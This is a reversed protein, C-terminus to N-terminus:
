GGSGCAPIEHSGNASAGTDPDTVEVGVYDPYPGPGCSVSVTKGSHSGNIRNGSWRYAYAGSGGSPDAECRYVSGTWACSVGVSLGEGVAIRRSRRGVVRGGDGKVRLTVERSGAQGFSRTVEPGTPRAGGGFDWEYTWAEGSGASTEPVMARFTVPEGALATAPETMFDAVAYRHRAVLNRDRDRVRVLRGAEDYEYFTTIGNEDETSTLAWTLPDYAYTAMRARAPHIRVDDLYTVRGGSAASRLAVAFRVWELDEPLEVETELREWDGTGENFTMGNNYYEQGGAGYDVSISARTGASKVWASFAYRTGPQIAGDRAVDVSMALGVNSVGSTAPSLRVAQRGTRAEGAYAGTAPAAEVVAVAGDRSGGQGLHDFAYWAEHGLAEAPEQERDNYPSIRGTPIAEFSTASAEARAAHSVTAVPLAGGYGYVTASRSGDQAVAEIVRSYADYRAVNATMEWPFDKTARPYADGDYGGRQDFPFPEYDYRADYAYTDNKRFVGAECPAAGDCTSRDLTWADSWTTATAGVVDEPPFGGGEDPFAYDLVEGAGGKLNVGGARYTAEEALQTLQNRARMGEYAWYAPTARTVLAGGASTSRAMALPQGSLADWAFTRARETHKNSASTSAGDYFHLTTESGVGYASQRRRTITGSAPPGASAEETFAHREAIAGLPVQLPAGGPALATGHRHLDRSLAYLTQSEKVVRYSGGGVHEHHTVSRPRGQLASRDDIVAGDGTAADRADYRAEANYATYFAYTTKGALPEGLGSENQVTVRAYVVGPAPRGYGLPSDLFTDEFPEYAEWGLPMKDAGYTSPLSATVGSSRDGVRYDYTTRHVGAGDSSAVARVRSGGGYVVDPVVGVEYDYELEYDGYPDNAKFDFSPSFEVEGTTSDIDLVIAKAAVTSTTGCDPEGACGEKTVVEGIYIEQDVELENALPVSTFSIAGGQGRPAAVPTFRLYRLDHTDSVHHYDDSEYEVAIRGGTPTTISTLAWAAAQDAQEKSQPTLHEYPGRGTAPDRYSGWRDWDDAHWSPNPGEYAFRYPPLYTAEGRGLLAVEKLTLAGRWAGDATTATSTPTGRRLSYDYTFAATRLPEAGEGVTWGESGRVVAPDAKAYLRVRELRRAVSYSPPVLNDVVLSAHHPQFDQGLAVEVLTQDNSPDYRYDLEAEAYDYVDYWPQDNINYLFKRVRLVVEGTGGAREILDDIRGAYVFQYRGGGLPSMSRTALETDSGRSAARRDLAPATRFEALHTATEIRTLLVYDRMGIAYTQLRDRPDAGVSLGQFPSRWTQPLAAKEYSLKVWYGWDGDGVGGGDRDVYDPGTVATLLWATAYPAQMTTSVETNAEDDKATWSHQYRNYVAHMFEYRKGDIDTVVFGRVKGADNFLPTVEKGYFRGGDALPDLDAGGGLRTSFNAGPDGVFRFTLDAKSGNAGGTVRALAAEEEEDYLEFASRWLPKMAGSIGQAAVQYADESTFLRGEQLHREFKKKDGGAALYEDLHLYGYSVESTTERLRWAWESYGLSVWFNYPLPIQGGFGTMTTTGGGKPGRSMAYASTGLVGYSGSLSGSSLSFGASAVSATLGDEGSVSLGAGAGLGQSGASVSGGFQFPSGKPSHSYSAGVSYGSTGASLRMGVGAALEFGVTANVGVTGSYHDYNM